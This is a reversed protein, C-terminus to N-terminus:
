NKLSPWVANKNIIGINGQLFEDMTGGFVEPTYEGLEKMTVPKLQEPTAYCIANEPSGQWTSSPDRYRLIISYSPDGLVYGTYNGWTLVPPQTAPTNQEIALNNVYDDPAFFVYAYGDKDAYKSLMRSNVSWYSLLQPQPQSEENNANSVNHSTQPPPPPTDQIKHSSISFYSAQYNGFITDPTDSEIFTTPVKIRIVEVQQSEAKNGYLYARSCGDPAIDDATVETSSLKDLRYMAIKGDVNIKNTNDITNNPHPLNFQRNILSTKVSSKTSITLMNSAPNVINDNSTQLNSANYAFVSPNGETYPNLGNGGITNMDRDLITEQRTYLQGQQSEAPYSYLTASMYAAQQYTGSIILDGNEGVPLNVVLYQAYQDFGLGLQGQVYCDYGCSYSSVNALSLPIGNFNVTPSEVAQQWGTSSGDGWVQYYRLVLQNYPYSEATVHFITQYQPMSEASIGSEDSNNPNSTATGSNCAAIAISGLLALLIHNM